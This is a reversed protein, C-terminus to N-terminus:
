PLTYMFVNIVPQKSAKNSATCYDCASTKSNKGNSPWAHIEKRLDIYTSGNRYKERRMIFGGYGKQYVTDRAQTIDQERVKSGISISRIQIYKCIPFFPLIGTPSSIEFPALIKRSPCAPGPLPILRIAAFEESSVQPLVRLTQNYSDQGLGNLQEKIMCELAAIPVHKRYAQIPHLAIGKVWTNLSISYKRTVRSEVYVM